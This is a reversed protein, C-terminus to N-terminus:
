SYSYRSASYSYSAWHGFESPRVFLANSASGGTADNKFDINIPPPGTLALTRDNCHEITADRHLSRGTSHTPLDQPRCCTTSKPLADERRVTTCSITHQRDLVRIMMQQWQIAHSPGAEANSKPWMTPPVFDPAFDPSSNCHPRFMRYLGITADRRYPAAESSSLVMRQVSAVCRASSCPFWLPTARDVGGILAALSRTCLPPLCQDSHDFQGRDLEVPVIAVPPSAEWGDSRTGRHDM